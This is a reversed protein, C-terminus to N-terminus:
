LHRGLDSGFRFSLGLAGSFNIGVCLCLPAEELVNDIDVSEERGAGFVPLRGAQRLLLGGFLLRVSLFRCLSLLM